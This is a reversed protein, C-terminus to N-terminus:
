AAAPLRPHSSRPLPGEQRSAGTPLPAALAPTGRWMFLHQTSNNGQRDPCDNSNSVRSPPCRGMCICPLRPSPGGFTGRAMVWISENNGTSMDIAPQRPASTYCPVGARPPCLSPRMFPMCAAGAGRSIVCQEHVIQGPASTRLAQMWHTWAHAGHGHGGRGCSAAQQANRSCMQKAQHRCTKAGCQHRVTRPNCPSGRGQLRHMYQTGYQSTLCTLVMYVGRHVIPAPTRPTAPAHPPIPTAMAHMPSVGKNWLALM